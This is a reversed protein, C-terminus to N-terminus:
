PDREARPERYLRRSPPFLSVRVGRQHRHSQNMSVTTVDFACEDSREPTHLYIPPKRTTSTETARAPSSRAGSMHQVGAPFRLFRVWAHPVLLLTRLRVPTTLVSCRLQGERPPLGGM